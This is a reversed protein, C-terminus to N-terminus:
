SGMDVESIIYLLLIQTERDIFPIPLIIRTFQTVSNRGRINRLDETKVRNRFGPYTPAKCNCVRVQMLANLMDLSAHTVGDDNRKLSKVVKLGVRERM